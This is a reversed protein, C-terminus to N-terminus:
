PQLPVWIDRNPFTGNINVTYTPWDQIMVGGTESCNVSYTPPAIGGRWKPARPRYKPPAERSASTPNRRLPKLWKRSSVSHPSLSNPEEPEPPMLDFVADVGEEIRDMLPSPPPSPPPSQPKLWPRSAKYDRDAKIIEEDSFPQPLDVSSRNPSQLYLDHDFHGHPTAENGHIHLTPFFAQSPDRTTFSFAMPHIQQSDGAKFKFVAFGYDAYQPWANWIQADICFRPDLRSFDAISPVFSADFAGVSHVILSPSTSGRAAPSKSRGGGKPQPNLWSHLDSFLTKYEELSIFEVSDEPCGPVVPIPLIMALEKSASLQMGYAIFQRDKDLRSLISTSAVRKPPSSFCCM